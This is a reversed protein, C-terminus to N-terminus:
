TKCPVRIFMQFTLWWIKKKKNSQTLKQVLLYLKECIIVVENMMEDNDSFFIKTVFKGKKVSENLDECGSLPWFERLM